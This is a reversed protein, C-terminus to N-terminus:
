RGEAKAIAALISEEVKNTTPATFRREKDSLRRRLYDIQSAADRCAALLDPAAAILRANAEVVVRAGIGTSTCKAVAPWTGDPQREGHRIYIDRHHAGQGTVPNWPGPTHKADM